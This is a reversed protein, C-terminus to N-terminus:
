FSPRCSDDTTNYDKQELTIKDDSLIENEVGDEVIDALKSFNLM